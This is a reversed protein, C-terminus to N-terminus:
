HIWFVFFDSPPCHVFSCVNADRYQTSWVHGYVPQVADFDDRRFAHLFCMLPTCVVSNPSCLLLMPAPGATSDSTLLVVLGPLLPVSKLLLPPRRWLKGANHYTGDPPLMLSRSHPREKKDSANREGKEFAGERNNEQLVCAASSKDVANIQTLVCMIATTHQTQPKPSVHPKHFKMTKTHNKKKPKM